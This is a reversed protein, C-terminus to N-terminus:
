GARRIFRGEHPDVEIREGKEVFLPVQIEAGGAVVARKMVKGAATNGRVAPETEIVEVELVKPLEVAAVRGEFHVARVSTGDVLWPAIEALSERPLSFQEFSEEDMFHLDDGDAYLFQAPRFVLDPSDVSEGAKFTKDILQGTLLHRLKTRVLTATGRATPSQLRVDVIAYPEGDVLIRLNKKFDSTTPM